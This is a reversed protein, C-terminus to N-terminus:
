DSCWILTDLKVDLIRWYYKRLTSKSKMLHTKLRWLRRKKYGLTWDLGTQRTHKRIFLIISNREKNKTVPQM